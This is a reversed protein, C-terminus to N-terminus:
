QCERIDPTTNDDLDITPPNICEHCCLIECGVGDRDHRPQRLFLDFPQVFQLAPALQGARNQQPLGNVKKQGYIDSIKIARDTIVLRGLTVASIAERQSRRPPITAVASAAPQSSPRNAEGLGPRESRSPIACITRSDGQGVAKTFPADSAVPERFRDPLMSRGGRSFEIERVTYMPQPAAANIADAARRSRRTWLRAPAVTVCGMYGVGM